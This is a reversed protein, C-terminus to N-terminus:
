AAKSGRLYAWDIDPRLVECVVAGKSEREISVALAASARRNCYAVQRLQGTSTVCKVAFEELASKSLAKLYEHLTM